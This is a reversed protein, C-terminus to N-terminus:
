GLAVMANDTEGKALAIMVLHAALEWCIEPYIRVLFTGHALHNQNHHRHFVVLHQLRIPQRSLVGLEPIKRAETRKNCQKKLEQQSGIHNQQM